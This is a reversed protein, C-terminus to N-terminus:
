WFAARLSVVAVNETTSGASDFGERELYRTYTYDLTASLWRTV